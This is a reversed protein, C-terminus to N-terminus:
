KLDIDFPMRAYVGRPDNLGSLVDLQREFTGIVEQVPGAKTLKRPKGQGLNRLLEKFADPERDPGVVQYDHEAKAMKAAYKVASGLGGMEDVLGLKLAEQGSWVRGQAIEQVAEKKLKRGEAVKAIFQDYIHDVM